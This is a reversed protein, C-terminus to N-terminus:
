QFLHFFSRFQKVPEPKEFDDLHVQDDRRCIFLLRTDMETGWVHATRSTVSEIEKPVPALNVCVSCTCVHVCWCAQRVYMTPGLQNTYAISTMISTNRAPAYAIHIYIYIHPVTLTFVLLSYVWIFVLSSCITPRTTATYRFFYM